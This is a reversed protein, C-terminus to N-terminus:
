ISRFCYYYRNRFINYEYQTADYDKDDLDLTKIEPYNITSNLISKVM